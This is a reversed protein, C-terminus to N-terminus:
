GYCSSDSRGHFLLNESQFLSIYYLNNFIFPNCTLMFLDLQFLYYIYPKYNMDKYLFEFENLYNSQLLLLLKSNNM